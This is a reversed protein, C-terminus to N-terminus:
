KEQKIFKSSKTIPTVKETDLYHKVLSKIHGRKYVDTWRDQNRIIYLQKTVTGIRLMKTRPFGAKKLARGMLSNKALDFDRNFNFLEALEKATYLDRALEINGHKLTHDPNIQLEHVFLDVDTMTALKMDHKSETDIAPAKPDFSTTDLHLLYHFLYSPGAGEYWKDLKKYFERSLPTGKIEHVMIRRDSAEVFMADSHNSNFLYNICDILKYEPRFKENITISNQTILSKLRDNDAWKSSSTIEEGMVFQRNAAWTNFPGHLAAHAIEEFNAGYIKEMIYGIFSKGTGQALSWLLVSTYM